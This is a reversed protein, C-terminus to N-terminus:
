PHAIAAPIQEKHVSQPPPSGIFHLDPVVASTLLIELTAPRLKCLVVVKMLAEKLSEVKM